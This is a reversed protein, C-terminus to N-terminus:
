FVHADFKKEFVTRSLRFGVKFILGAPDERAIRVAPVVIPENGELVRGFAGAFPQGAGAFPRHKQCPFGGGDFSIGRGERALEAVKQRVPRRLRIAVRVIMESLAVERPKDLSGIM